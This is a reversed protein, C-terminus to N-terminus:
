LNRVLEIIDKVQMKARKVIDRLSANEKEIEDICRDTDADDEIIKNLLKNNERLEDREKWCARVENQYILTDRIVKDHTEPERSLRKLDAETMRDM